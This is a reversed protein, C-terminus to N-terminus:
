RLFQMLNPQIISASTALAIEYSTQRVKLDLAESTV